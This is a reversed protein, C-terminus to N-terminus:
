FHKYEAVNEPLTVNLEYLSRGAENFYIKITTKQSQNM